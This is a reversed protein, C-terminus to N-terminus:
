WREYQREDECGDNFGRQYDEEKQQAEMARAQKIVEHIKNGDNAYLELINDLKSEIFDVVSQKNNNM